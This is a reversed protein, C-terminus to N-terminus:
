TKLVNQASPNPASKLIRMMNRQAAEVGPQGYPNLGMLRGEIVTALMLMQMLQGLTHENLTPLLLDAFPRGAEAHAEGTGRRAADQLDVYNRRSLQNLGDENRDAMGVQIPTTRPTRVVVNTILKDRKGEQHHQGRSHLDRSNVTTVPTPGRGFKGLSEAVLQDYWFGLAELKKSWVSLVRVPKGLEESMLHCIAAYQLVPNREFPEDIFQRTMSAAGLLLARIDLGMIAAPLLGVPSFVSFRGGIREPITFIEDDSYGEAQVLARLSSDGNGTIPVFLQRLWPSRSGYYEQAERRLVRLAVATELTSGSKSIAIVGWREERVEPNVCTTQLLDLLDQLADNDTTNGEFYIRPVGVRNEPPLENHYTSRLAEFIARAGLYAGGAGLIVFRDADERLQNATQHIRQLESEQPKKRLENLLRDPLDIFASDLPRQNLPPVSVERETAVQTRIQNIVPLFAKLRSPALFHQSQLELRPSFEEDPKPQFLLSQYQYSVSEDPLQM